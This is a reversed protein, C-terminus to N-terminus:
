CTVQPGGFICGCLGSGGNEQRCPCGSTDYKPLFGTCKGVKDPDFQIYGTACILCKEVTPAWVAHCNPCSWGDNYVM